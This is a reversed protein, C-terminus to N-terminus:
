SAPLSIVKNHALQEKPPLFHIQLDNAVVQFNGRCHPLIHEGSDGTELIPERTRHVDHHTEASLLLIAPCLTDTNLEVHLASLHDTDGLGKRMGDVTEVGADILSEIRYAETEFLVCSGLGALGMTM